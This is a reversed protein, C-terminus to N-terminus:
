SCNKHARTIIIVCTTKHGSRNQIFFPPRLIPVCVHICTSSVKNHYTFEGGKIARSVTVELVIWWAVGQWILSYAITTLSRYLGVFCCAQNCCNNRQRHQDKKTATTPLNLLHTISNGGRFLM